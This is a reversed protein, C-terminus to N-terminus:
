TMWLVVRYGRDQLGQFFAAPDPYRAADVQFDNYRRSWPSDILVTRVPLDHRAYGEVLETVAAATNVDDEWLWCELAWPPTLPVRGHRSANFPMGWFPYLVGLTALLALAAGAAAALRFARRM